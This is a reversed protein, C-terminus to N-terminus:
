KAGPDDPNSWGFPYCALSAMRERHHLTVAGAKLTILGERRLQQLTRNIHVISLGLADAFMEQTVPIRYTHEKVMGVTDLRDYLELLLNLVREKATLRGIRVMQDFLRDERQRIAREVAKAASVAELSDGGAVVGADVMELRTLAVLARQGINSAPQVDIADGPLVFAFIQRRGDSLIRTECSWGSVVILRRTANASNRVTAGPAYREVSRWFTQVRKPDLGSVDGLGAFTSASRYRPSDAAARLESM